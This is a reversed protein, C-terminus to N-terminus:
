LFIDSHSGTRSLTLILRDSEIKYVLLWDPKIHCERFGKWNGVLIHDKYEASLPQMEALMKIVGNILSMDLGRSKCLKYDKKFKTTLIIKLKM